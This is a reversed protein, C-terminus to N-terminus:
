RQRIQPFSLEFRIAASSLGIFSIDSAIFGTASGGKGISFISSIVLKIPPSPDILYRCILLPIRHCRIGRKKYHSEESSSYLPLCTNALVLPQFASGCVPPLAPSIGAREEWADRM